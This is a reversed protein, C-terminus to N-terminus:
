DRGMRLCLIGMVFCFIASVWNLWRSPDQIIFPINVASAIFPTISSVIKVIKM